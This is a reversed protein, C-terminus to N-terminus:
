PTLGCDAKTESLRLLRFEPLYSNWNQGKKQTIRLNLRVKSLRRVEPLKVNSHM